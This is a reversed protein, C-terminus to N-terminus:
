TDSGLTLDAPTDVDRLIGPDDVDIRVLADRHAGIVAKAGVDGRLAVLADGCARGFGVPHGREGRHFPAAVMAGDRIAAAVAGMTAPSVWPMDALAVVWGAAERSARVGCALSAGMGEASKASRVVEAGADVLAAALVDDEPRVVAIVRGVAALVNRCAVAGVMSSVAGPLVARLKDGGYREGRGAALLVGVVSSM